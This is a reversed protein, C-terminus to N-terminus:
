RFGDALSRDLTRAFYIQVRNAGAQVPVLMQGTGERTWGTRRPWESGRAV